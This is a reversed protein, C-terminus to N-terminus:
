ATGGAPGGRPPPWPRGLLVSHNRYRAPMHAGVSALVTVALLLPVRVDWFVPVLGLLGLKALTVLGKGLVLWHMTRHLEIAVLGAGSAVTLALAAGLRGPAVAFAHGGLLLSFGVLHVTRLGM